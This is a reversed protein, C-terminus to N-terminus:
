NWKPSHFFASVINIPVNRFKKINILVNFEDYSSQVNKGEFIEPMYKVTEYSGYMMARKYYNPLDNDHEEKSDYTDRGSLTPSYETMLDFHTVTKNNDHGDIVFIEVDNRKCNSKALNELTKINEDMNSDMDEIPLFVGGNEFGTASRDLFYFVVNILKNQIIIYM